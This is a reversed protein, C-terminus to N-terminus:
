ARVKLIERAIHRTGAKGRARRLIAKEEKLWERQVQKGKVALERRSIGRLEPAVAECIFAGSPAFVYIAGADADNLLVRVERGVHAGLAAAMYVTNNLRIGRKTVRRRGGDSPAEALVVRLAEEDEIRRVPGDWAAAVEFPTRRGLGEHPKHHYHVEIWQDIIEQLQEPTLEAEIVAAEKNGDRRAKRQAFAKRAEIIQREAVNHGCYGPLLEFLGHLVTRFFREVHPKQEPSFKDCLRHEIELYTLVRVMHRSKYDAGQDTKMAGPVGWALICRGSLDTIAKARSTPAVLIKGRRTGVDLSAVLAHRKGDALLLEIDGITSDLEWLDNPGVGESYSGFASQFRGKFADPNTAAAFAVENEAKWQGIWRQLTRLTPLDRYDGGPLPEGDPFRAELGARIHAASAHPFQMLMGVVFTKVEGDRDIKGDGARNGYRPALGALGRAKYDRLWRKVTPGSVKPIQIRTDPSVGAEGAAYLDPFSQLAERQSLGERRQCRLFAQVVNERAEALPQWREAPRDTPLAPPEAQRARQEEWARARGSSIRAQWARRALVPGSVERPMMPDELLFLKKWGGRVPKEIFPWGEREARRRVHRSDHNLIVAIEEADVVPGFDPQASIAREASDGASLTM